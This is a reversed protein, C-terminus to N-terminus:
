IGRDTLLPIERDEEYMKLLEELLEGHRIIDRRLQAINNQLEINSAMM